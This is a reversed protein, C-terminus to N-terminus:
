TISHHVSSREETDSRAEEGRREGGHRLLRVFDVSKAPQPGVGRKLTGLPQNFM